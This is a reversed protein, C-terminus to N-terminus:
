LMAFYYNKGREYDKSLRELKLGVQSLHAAIEEVAFRDHDGPALVEIKAPCFFKIGDVRGDIKTKGKTEQRLRAFYESAIDNALKECAVSRYRKEIEEKKNKFYDRFLALSHFLDKPNAVCLTIGDDSYELGYYEMDTIFQGRPISLPLEVKADRMYDLVYQFRNGDRELFIEDNAPDTSGQKWRDSAIRALMSDPYQDLLSRAVDYKTGGVNFRVIMRSAAAAMEGRAETRRGGESKTPDEGNQPSM